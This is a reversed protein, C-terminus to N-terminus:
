GQTHTEASKLREVTDCAYVDLTIRSTLLEQIVRVVCLIPVAIPWGRKGALDGHLQPRICCPGFNSGEAGAAPCWEHAKTNDGLKEYLDGLQWM